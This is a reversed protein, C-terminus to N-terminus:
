RALARTVRYNVWALLGIVVFLVCAIAAAYGLHRDEFAAQYLYLTVTQFQGRAGGNAGPLMDFLKPETFIQLGGVTSTVAVFVLTPRLLPLTVSTFRRMPGAGDLLAAEHPERPVARLAALVILANYGTWRWDVMSAIALHAAFRDAQWDVPDLGVATLADNVLGFRPGFLNAFVIAVAVLSMACPLLIGIEWRSAIRRTDLLAALGIAIVLQPVTTLAVLSLTNVVARGFREDTLLAAYNGFGVFAPSDDLLDWDFLALYGNYILPYVVVFGFVAFFPLIFLYPARSRM